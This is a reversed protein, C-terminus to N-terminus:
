TFYKIKSKAVIFFIFKYDKVKQLWNINAVDDQYVNRRIKLYYFFDIIIFDCKYPQIKNYQKCGLACIVLLSFVVFPVILACVFVPLFHLCCSFFVLLFFFVCM